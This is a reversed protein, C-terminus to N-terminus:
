RPTSPPFLEGRVLAPLDRAVWTPRIGQREVDELTSIGSLVLATDMGLGQAGLIDTELRDGIMLARDSPVGAVGLAIHYAAPSPKGMVQEPPFGMGELAGVVAGAGPVLGNETPYTADRNTALFRAGSLLARLAQALKDYTLGRDMGVVVWQAEAPSAPSHGACTMEEVLGREGLAWFRVPGHEDALYRAAVYASPVVEDATVAFGAAGLRAAMDARSRTANNTLLVVRGRDKLSALAEVAGPVPEAGRVLVGDIDLLFGQYHDLPCRGCGAGRSM